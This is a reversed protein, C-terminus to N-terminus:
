ARSKKVAVWQPEADDTLDCCLVKNQRAAEAVEDRQNVPARQPCPLHFEIM